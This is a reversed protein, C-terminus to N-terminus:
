VLTKWNWRNKETPLVMAPSLEEAERWSYIGGRTRRRPELMTSRCIESLPINTTLTEMVIKAKEESAWKKKGPM